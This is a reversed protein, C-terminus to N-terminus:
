VNEESITSTKQTKEQIGKGDIKAKQFIRNRGIRSIGYGVSNEQTETGEVERRKM